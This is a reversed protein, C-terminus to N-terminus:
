RHREKHMQILMTSILIGIYSGMVVDSLWHQDHYMRSLGTIVALMYYFTKLYINDTTSALVCSLAFSVSAHGSSFSLQENPGATIGYFSFDGHLTFPRWRGFFSKFILTVLGSYVYTEGILLGINRVAAKKFLLGSLYFILFLFLTPPGNGYWRGFDAITDFPERRFGLVIFRFANDLYFASFLIFLLVISIKWHSTIWTFSRPYVRLFDYWLQKVDNLLSRAIVKVRV